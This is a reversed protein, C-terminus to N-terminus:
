HLNSLQYSRKENNARHQTIDLDVQGLVAKKILASGKIDNNILIIDAIRKGLRM